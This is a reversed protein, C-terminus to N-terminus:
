VQHNVVDMNNIFNVALEIRHNIREKGLIHIIDFIGPSATSGTLALRLPHIIKAASVNHNEALDRITKEINEVNFISIRNLAEKALILLKPTSEPKFYKNIGKENYSQPHQFYFELGNEFDVLTNARQKVLNALNILSEKDVSSLKSIEEKFKVSLALLEQASAKNLYKNNMWLLKHEDFVANAKSVKNLTFLQILEDKDLIERDDGPAWGLLCLYNFLANALLGKNRFEEVSTAGHRKSLRKKDPGLILPLHAFEPVKWKLAKFIMIQKPTNPLHDAGRVIHTIGMDFDDVVVALQYVPTSDSRLIIFDGIEKSNISIEGFIKDNFKIFGEYTKLRISYKISQSLKQAIEASTLNRCTGDYVYETKNKKAIKRQEILKESSCFCRYAHNNKLLKHAIEVHRKERESQYVPSEDWDIGLWNLSDL